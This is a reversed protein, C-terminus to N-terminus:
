WDRRVRGRCVRKNAQKKRDKTVTRPPIWTGLPKGQAFHEAREIGRAARVADMAREERTQPKRNKTKRRAM